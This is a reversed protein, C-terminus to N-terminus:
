FPEEEQAAQEPKLWGHKRLHQEAGFMCAHLYGFTESAEGLAQSMMEGGKMMSSLLEEAQLARQELDAPDSTVNYAWRLLEVIKQAKSLSATRRQADMKRTRENERLVNRGSARLEERNLWAPPDIIAAIQEALDPM